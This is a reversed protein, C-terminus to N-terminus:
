TLRINKGNEVLTHSQPSVTRKMAAQVFNRIEADLSIRAPILFRGGSFFRGVDTTEANSPPPTIRSLISTDSEGGFITRVMLGIQDRATQFVLALQQEVGPRIDVPTPPDGQTAAAISFTGSLVGFAGSVPAIPAFLGSAVSFAGSLIEFLKNEPEEPEGFDNVLTSIQLIENIVGNQLQNEYGVLMRHATSMANRVHFLAPPNFALCNGPAPCSGSLDACDLTSDILRGDPLMQQDIANPWNLPGEPRNRIFRDLFDSAGSNRWTEAANEASM